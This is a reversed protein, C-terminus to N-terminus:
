HDAHARSFRRLLRVWWHYESNVRGAAGSTPPLYRRSELTLPSFHSSLLGGQALMLRTSHTIPPRAPHRWSQHPSAGSLGSLNRLSAPKGGGFCSGRGFRAGLRPERTVVARRTQLGQVRFVPLVGSDRNVIYPRESAEAGGGFM